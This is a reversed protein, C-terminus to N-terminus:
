KNKTALEGSLRALRSSGATVLPPPPPAPELKGDIALTPLEVGYVEVSSRCEAASLLQMAFLAVCVCDVLSPALKSSLVVLGAITLSPIVSSAFILAIVFLSQEMHLQLYDVLAQQKVEAEEENYECVRIIFTLFINAILHCNNRTSSSSYAKVLSASFREVSSLLYIPPRLVPSSVTEFLQASTKIFPEYLIFNPSVRVNKVRRQTQLLLPHGFHAFGLEGCASRELFMGPDLSSVFGPMSTASYTGPAFTEVTSKLVSFKGATSVGSAQSLAAILYACNRPSLSVKNM